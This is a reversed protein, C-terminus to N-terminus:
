IGGVCVTDCNDLYCQIMASKEANLWRYVEISERLSDIEAQLAVTEPEDESQTPSDECGIVVGLTFSFLLILVYRM